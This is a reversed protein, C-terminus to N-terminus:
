EMKWKAFWKENFTLGINIRFSNETIFKKSDQRVWQVSLNLMSRNNYANVIPVAVGASVSYEKPGDHGNIKLYNTAYSAGFRYHMRKFFRRSREVPCYDAGITLKHRDSYADNSIEYRDPQGDKGTVYKPYVAKSWTQLQYDLAVKLSKDRHWMVGVGYTSPIGLGDKLSYVTTDAVGTQSNTSIVKCDPDAKLNHGPSFTLGVTLEDNKSIRHTYQVGFDLKYNRVEAHYYRSLTNVYGDSYSNVVSRDYEGWLYSINAGLSFDKFPSWGAGVYVQHLGGSGSYTNNYAVQSANNDGPNLKETNSYQYGINTYPLIGFSFGLNKRLRFAATVYEFNSNRANIKVGGESYNTFQGSFGADLIFTLSDVSSYSAPNIFNIQNHEHFGIGLGNMGRNAGGSQDALVGLGYQSYPSNTASQASVLMALNVMAMSMLTRRIKMSNTKKFKNRYTFLHKTVIAESVCDAVRRKYM